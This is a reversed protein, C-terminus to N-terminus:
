ESTPIARTAGKKESPLNPDVGGAGAFRDGPSDHGNGSHKVPALEPRHGAEDKAGRAEGHELIDRGTLNRIVKYFVPTVFVGFFTVGLMGFFVATGMAQRLESGAGTAFILPM